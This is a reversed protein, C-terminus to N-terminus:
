FWFTELDPEFQVTEVLSTWSSSELHAESRGFRSPRWLFDTRSWVLVSAALPIFAKPLTQVEFGDLFLQHNPAEAAHLHDDAFTWSQLSTDSEHGLSTTRSTNPSSNCLFLHLRSRFDPLVLRTNQVGPLKSVMLLSWFMETAWSGARLVFSRKTEAALSSMSKIEDRWSFWSFTLLANWWSFQLRCCSWSFWDLREPAAATFTSGKISSFHMSTVSAEDSASTLSTAAEHVSQVDAM